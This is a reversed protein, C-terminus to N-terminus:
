SISAAGGNRSNWFANAGKPRGVIHAGDFVGGGLDAALLAPTVGSLLGGNYRMPNEGRRGSWTSVPAGYDGLHPRRDDARRRDQPGVRGGALGKGFHDARPLRARRAARVMSALAIARGATKELSQVATFGRRLCTKELAPKSLSRALIESVLRVQWDPQTLGSLHCQRSTGNESVLSPGGRSRPVRSTM